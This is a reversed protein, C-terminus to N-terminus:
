AMQTTATDLAQGVSVLKASMQYASEAQILTVLSSALDTGSANLSGEVITGLGAAGPNGTTVPGTDASPLYLGNGMDELRSPNPVSALTLQGLTTPVGNITASVVGTPSVTAQAGPPVTIRPLVFAGQDTVLNGDADVTFAGDRTYYVQGGPGEVQFFGNGDVASDYPAGTPTMGNSFTPTDSSLLPGVQVSAGPVLTQGALTTNPNRVLESPGTSITTDRSGFGPTDVNAINSAAADLTGSQALLGALGVGIVNDM